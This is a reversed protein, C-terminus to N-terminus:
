PCNQPITIKRLTPSLKRNRPIGQAKKTSFWVNSNLSTIDRSILNKGKGLNQQNQKNTYTNTSYATETGLILRFHVKGQAHPIM